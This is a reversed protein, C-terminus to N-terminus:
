AFVQMHQENRDQSGHSQMTLPTPQVTPGPHLQLM